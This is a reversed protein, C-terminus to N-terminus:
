PVYGLRQMMEGHAYVVRDVQDSSLYKRWDGTRGSRFFRAQKPAREYFGHKIEQEQLREFRTEEVSKELRERDIAAGPTCHILVRELQHIPDNLMDEYRVLFPRVDDAEMWSKVHGSWDLLRQRIQRTDGGSGDPKPEGAIVAGFDCLKNVYKKFDRNGAHFAFSVAVDLPNRVLYVISRIAATPVLVTGNADQIRADHIKVWIPSEALESWAAFFDPQLETIEAEKLVGSEVFLVNDVRMGWIFPAESWYGCM